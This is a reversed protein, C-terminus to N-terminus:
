TTPLATSANRPAPVELSPEWMARLYCMVDVHLQFTGTKILHLRM